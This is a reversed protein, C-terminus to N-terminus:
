PQPKLSGIQREVSGTRAAGPPRADGRLTTLKRAVAQVFAPTTGCCGGIFSAGAAILDPVFRAFEEPTTDYKALGDTMTPLGANAKIWVPRDTAAHLRGCVSVFGAV